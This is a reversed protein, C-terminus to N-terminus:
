TAAGDTPLMDEDPKGPTDEHSKHETSQNGSTEDIVTQSNVDAIVPNGTGTDMSGDMHVTAVAVLGDQRHLEIAPTTDSGSAMTSENAPQTMEMDDDQSSKPPSRPSSLHSVPGAEDDTPPPRAALWEYIYHEGIHFWNYLTCTSSTESSEAHEAKKVNGITPRREPLDYEQVHRLVRICELDSTDPYWWGHHADITPPIGYAGLLVHRHIDIDSYFDAHVSDTSLGHDIFTIGYPYASSIMDQTIGNYALHRIVNDETLDRGHGDWEMRELVNSLATIEVNPERIPHTWGLERPHAIDVPTCTTPLGAGHNNNKPNSVVCGVMGRLERLNMSFGRPNPRQENGSPRRYARGSDLVRAANVAKANVLVMNHKTIYLFGPGIMGCFGNHREVQGTANTSRLGPPLRGSQDEWKLFHECEKIKYAPTNKPLPNLHDWKVHWLEDDDEDDSDDEDSGYPEKTSAPHNALNDPHIPRRGM